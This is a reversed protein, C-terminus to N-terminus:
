QAAGNDSKPPDQTLAGSAEAEAIERDSPAMNMKQLAELAADTAPGFFPPQRQLQEDRRRATSRKRAAAQADLPGADFDAWPPAFADFIVQAASQLQWWTDPDDHWKKGTRKEILWIATTLARVLDGTRSGLVARLWEAGQDSFSEDLRNVIESNLSRDQRKAERELRRRLRESFRLKLQVTDSPKRAM